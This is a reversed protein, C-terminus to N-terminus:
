QIVEIALFLDSERPQAAIQFETHFLWLQSDKGKVIINESKRSRNGKIKCVFRKLYYLSVVKLCM